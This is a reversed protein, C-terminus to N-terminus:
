SEFTYDAMISKEHTNLRDLVPFINVFNPAAGIFLPFLNKRKSHFISTFIYKQRPVFSYDPTDERFSRPGIEIGDDKM